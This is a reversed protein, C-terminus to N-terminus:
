PAPPRTSEVDIQDDGPGTGLIITEVESDYSLGGFLARTLSNNTIIYGIGVARITMGFTPSTM